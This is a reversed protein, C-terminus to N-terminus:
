IINQITEFLNWPTDIYYYPQGGHELEMAFYIKDFNAHTILAEQIPKRWKKWLTPSIVLSDTWIPLKNNLFNQRNTVSLAMFQKTYVSFITDDDTLWSWICYSKNDAPFINM